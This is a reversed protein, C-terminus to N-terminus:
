RLLDEPTDWDALEGAELESVLLPSAKLRDLLRYLGLEGRELQQDVVLRAAAVRYRSLMPEWRPPMGTQAAVATIVDVECLRTLLASTLHPLDGGLLVVEDVPLALLARLGGIPGVDPPDDPLSPLTGVDYEKRNGLLYVPADPVTGRAQKALHDVITSGDRRRLLGKAAGGLRSGKGGVLIGFALRTM